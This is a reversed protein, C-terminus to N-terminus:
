GVAVGEDTGETENSGVPDGVNSSSLSGVAAGVFLGVMEPGARAKGDNLGVDDASGVRAGVVVGDASGVNDRKGVVSESDGVCSGDIEASGDFDEAGLLLDPALSNTPFASTLSSIESRLYSAASSSFVPSSSSYFLHPLRACPM